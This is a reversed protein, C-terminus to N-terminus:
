RVENAIELMRPLLPGESAIAETPGRRLAQVQDTTDAVALFRILSSALRAVDDRRALNERRRSAAAAAAVAESVPKSPTRKLGTKTDSRKVGLKAEMGDVVSPEPAALPDGAAAAPAAPPTAGVRALLHLVTDSQTTLSASLAAQACLASLTAM